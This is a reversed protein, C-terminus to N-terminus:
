SGRRTFFPPGGSDIGDGHRRGGGGLTRGTNRRSEGVRRSVVLGARPPIAPRQVFGAPPITDSELFVLWPRAGCSRNQWRPPWRFTENLAQTACPRPVFSARHFSARFVALRALPREESPQRPASRCPEAPQAPAAGAPRAAVRGPSPTAGPVGSWRGTGWAAGDQAGDAMGAGRGTRGGGGHRLPNCSDPASCGCGAWSHWRADSSAPNVGSMRSRAPTAAPATRSPSKPGASM